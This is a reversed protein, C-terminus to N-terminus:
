AQAGAEPNLATVPVLTFALGDDVVVYVTVPVKLPQEKVPLRVTTTTAFGRGVLILALLEAPVTHAPPVTFRVPEAVLRGLVIMEFLKLLPKPLQLVCFLEVPPVGALAAQVRRGLPYLTDAFVKLLLSAEWNTNDLESACPLPLVVVVMM